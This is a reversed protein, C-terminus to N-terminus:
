VQLRMTGSAVDAELDLLLRKRDLGGGFGTLSGDAGIVRHCPVIVAIPNQGNAAGIARAADPQGIRRAQEGYSVTEGYPIERLAHWAQRQFPPGDLVLPVDFERRRGEFYEALQETVAAFPEDDRQWAPEIRKRRGSQMYLGHLATGDGVLLLEGIPSDVTTYFRRDANTEM